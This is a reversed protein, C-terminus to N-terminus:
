RSEELAHALDLMSIATSESSGSIGQDTDQNVERRAMPSNDEDIDM